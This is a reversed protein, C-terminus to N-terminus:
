KTTEARKWHTFDDADETELIWVTAVVCLSILVLLLLVEITMRTKTLLNSREPVLIFLKLKINQKIPLQISQM